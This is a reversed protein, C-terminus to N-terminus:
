KITLKIDYGKIYILPLDPSDTGKFAEYELQSSELIKLKVTLGAGEINLHPYKLDAKLRYAIDESLGLESKIYKGSLEIRSFGPDIKEIFFEDDYGTEVKLSENLLGIKYDSYKTESIEMSSITEITFKDTYSSIIKNEGTKDFIYKTYKSKIEAGEYEGIEFSGDYSDINMSGSIKSKLTTYKSIINIDNTTEFFYKDSYSEIILNKVEGCTIESYKSTFRANEIDGLTMNCDYLNAELEGFGEFEITSYKAAISIDNLALEGKLKDNYLNLDLKGDVNELNITSYKSILNLYAEAPLWIEGKMDFTKYFINGTGKLKMIKIGAINKRSSWFRNDLKLEHSSSEFKVDELHEKFKRTDSESRFKANVDLKFVVEAKDWTHIVLDCNYNRLEINGDTNIDFTWKYVKNVENNQGSAALTSFFIIIAVCSYALKAIRKMIVHKTQKM